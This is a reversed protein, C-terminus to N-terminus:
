GKRHVAKRRQRGLAYTCVRFRHTHTIRLYQFQSIEGRDLPKFVSCSKVYWIMVHMKSKANHLKILKISYQISFQPSIVITDKARMDCRCRTEVQQVMSQASVPFWFFSLVKRRPINRGKAYLLIEIWFRALCGIFSSLRLLIGFLVVSCNFLVDIEDPLFINQLFHISILYFMHFITHLGFVPSVCSHHKSDSFGIFSEM